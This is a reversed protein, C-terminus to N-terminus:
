ASGLSESLERAHFAPESEGARPGRGLHRALAFFGKGPLRAPGRGVARAAVFPRGAESDEQMTADLAATVKAISGPMYMGLGRALRGYTVPLKDAPQTELYQRVRGPLTNAAKEAASLVRPPPVEQASGDPMVDAAWARKVGRVIVRTRDPVPGPSPETTMAIEGLKLGTQLEAPTMGLRAALYDPDIVLQDKEWGISDAPVPRSFSPSQGGEKSYFPNDGGAHDTVDVIEGIQPLAARLMTEVGKRLTVASAACGQCGGSMRLYVSGNEVAEATIRGGHSAISPNARTELLESVAALLAADDDSAAPAQPKPGLPEDSSDLAARIAAAVPAKLTQWDRDPAITVLITEDATEFKMVGDIAFLARALPADDAPATFSAKRGDGVAQDLVFRMVQRDRPSAMARIRRRTETESM